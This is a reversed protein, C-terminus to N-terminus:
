RRSLYCSVVTVVIRMQDPLDAQAKFRQLTNLLLGQTNERSFSMKLGGMNFSVAIRKKAVLKWKNQM